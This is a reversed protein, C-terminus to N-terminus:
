SKKVKVKASKSKVPPAEEEEDEEEEEEEEEDLNEEEAEDGKRSKKAATRKAGKSGWGAVPEGSKDFEPLKKEPATGEQEKIVGRNFLNRVMHVDSVEYKKKGPFETRMFAAIQEDTLKAKYNAKMIKLWCLRVNLKTTAGTAGRFGRGPGKKKEPAPAETPENSAKIKSVKAM